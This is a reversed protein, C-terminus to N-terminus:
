VRIISGGDILFTQGTIWGSADDALFAAANVLDEPRGPRKITQMALVGDRIPAAHDERNHPSDIMGPAIANVTINDPGLERAFSITLGILALKAVSYVGGASYAAMSAQNIIRGARSARLQPVCARSMLWAGTLNVALWRDWRERAVEVLSLTDPAPNRGANNLLVDIAGFREAVAAALGRASAEDTIDVHFAAAAAGIGEAVERAAPLNIDAVAVRAGRAALGEAYAKGLGRGAGTVLVVKGDLAM